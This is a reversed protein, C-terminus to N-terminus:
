PLLVRGAHLPAPPAGVLLAPPPATHLPPFIMPPGVGAAGRRRAVAAPPGDESDVKRGPVAFYGGLFKMSRRRRIMYVEIPEPSGASATRVLVVSAAPKPEVPALPSRM